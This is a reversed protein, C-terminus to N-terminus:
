VSASTKEAPWPPDLLPGHKMLLTRLKNMQSELTELMWDVPAPTLARAQAVTSNYGDVDGMGFQAEARTALSWFKQEWLQSETESSAGAANQKAQEERRVIDDWEAACLQLVERRIRNAWVLDAIREQPKADLSTDTRVNLLYALNIGNYRDNRLYYGRQYYSIAQALHEDGQGKEFLRKEIAGALGVTEPDNSDKPNLVALTNLAETLAALENPQKAKYTALALRQVLYPDNRAPGTGSNGTGDGKDLKYALAFYTKADGFRSPTEHIAREGEEVLAALTQQHPEPAPTRLEPASEALAQGAKVLADGVRSLTAQAKLTPPNLDSLFTYIPSDVQGANLVSELTQGLVGRFRMVEDYDIADGLHTYSTILIHNLDFPYPLKNESIVVTTHPRLAHRIGLEYLANPNATSLDAIVVDATLLERYMPVDIAGSHRIEDARICELGKEQAVPKILLRYSKDLDLKRGTALDTKVGFGMVVFCRKTNGNTAVDNIGMM